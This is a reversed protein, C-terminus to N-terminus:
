DETLLIWSVLICNANKQLQEQEKAFMSIIANEHLEAIPLNFNEESEEPVSSGYLV